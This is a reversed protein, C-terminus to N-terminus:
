KRAFPQQGDGACEYKTESEPGRVVSFVVELLEKINAHMNSTVPVHKGIQLRATAIKKPELM